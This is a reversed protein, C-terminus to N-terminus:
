VSVRNEFTALKAYKFIRLKNSAYWVISYFILLSVRITQKFAHISVYAHTRIYVYLFTFM